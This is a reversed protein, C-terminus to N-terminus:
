PQAPSLILIKPSQIQSFTIQNPGLKPLLRSWIELEQSSPEM